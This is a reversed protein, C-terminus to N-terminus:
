RGVRGLAARRLRRSQDATWVVGAAVILEAISGLVSLSAGNSRSGIWCAGANGWSGSTEQAEDQPWVEVGESLYGEIEQGISRTKDHTAVVAAVEAGLNTAGVQYAAGPYPGHGIWANGNVRGHILGTPQQWYNPQYELIAMAAGTNASQVVSLISVKSTSSLDLTDLAMATAADFYVGPCGNAGHAVYEPRLAPTAQTAVDVAARHGPWVEVAAPADTSLDSAVLWVDPTHGMIGAMVASATRRHHRATRHGLHGPAARNARSTRHGIRM